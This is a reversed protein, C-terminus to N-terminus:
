NKGYAKLTVSFFSFFIIIDYLLLISRSNHMRVKFLFEEALAKYETTSTTSSLTSFNEFQLKLMELEVTLKQIVDDKSSLLEQLDKIKAFSQEITESEFEPLLMDGGGGVQDSKLIEDMVDQVKRRKEDMVEDHDFEEEGLQSNLSQRYEMQVEPTVFNSEVNVEHLSRDNENNSITDDSIEINESISKESEQNNDPLLPPTVSISFSFDSATNESRESGDSADIQSIKPSTSPSKRKQQGPLQFLFYKLQLCIPFNSSCSTM